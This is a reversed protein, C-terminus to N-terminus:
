DETQEVSSIPMKEVDRSPIFEEMVPKWEEMRSQGLEMVMQHLQQLRETQKCQTETQFSQLEGLTDEASKLREELMEGVGTLDEQLRDVREEAERQQERVRNYQDQYTQTLSYFHGRQEAALAQQAEKQEEMMRVLYGLPDEQQRATAARTTVGKSM